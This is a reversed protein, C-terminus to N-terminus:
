TLFIYYNRYVSHGSLTWLKRQTVNVFESRTEYNKVRIM